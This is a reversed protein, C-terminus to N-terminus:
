INSGTSLVHKAKNMCILLSFHFHTLAYVNMNQHTHATIQTDPYETKKGMYIDTTNVKVNFNARETIKTVPGIYVNSLKYDGFSYVNLYQYQKQFM